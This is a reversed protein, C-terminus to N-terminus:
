DACAMNFEALGSTETYAAVCDISEALEATVRWTIAYQPEQPYTWAQCEAAVTAFSGRPVSFTFAATSAPGIRVYDSMNEPREVRNFVYGARCQMARASENKVELRIEVNEPDADGCSVGLIILLVLSCLPKSRPNTM